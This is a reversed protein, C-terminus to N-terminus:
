EDRNMEEFKVRLVWGFTTGLSLLLFGILITM